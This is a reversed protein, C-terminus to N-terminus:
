QCCPQTKKKISTAPKRTEPGTRRVPFVQLSHASYLCISSSGQPGFTLPLSRPSAPEARVEPGSRPAVRREVDSQLTM